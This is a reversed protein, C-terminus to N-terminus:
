QPFVIYLNRLFNFNFSDYSGAIESMPIYGFSIYDTHQLAMQVGMRVTSKHVIVMFLFCGLHGNISSHIFFIHRCVICYHKGMFFFLIRDKPVVHTFALSWKALHFISPVSLCYRGCSREWLQFIFINIKYNMTALSHFWGLHGYVSSHIFLINIYM